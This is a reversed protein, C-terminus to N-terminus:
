CFKRSNLKYILNVYKDSGSSIVSSNLAGFSVMDAVATIWTPFEHGMM